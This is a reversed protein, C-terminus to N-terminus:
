FLRCLLRVDAAFLGGVWAVVSMLVFVLSWGFRGTTSEGSRLVFPVSAM